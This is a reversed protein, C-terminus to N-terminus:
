HLEHSSKVSINQTYKVFQNWKAIPRNLLLDCIIDFHALLLFTACSAIAVSTDSINKGCNSMM